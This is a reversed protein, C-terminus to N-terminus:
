SNLMKKNHENVLNQIENQVKTAAAVNPTGLTTYLLEWSKLNEIKKILPNM